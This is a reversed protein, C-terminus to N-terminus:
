FSFVTDQDNKFTSKNANRENSVGLRGFGTILLREGEGVFRDSYSIPQVKEGDFQITGNIELLGIDNALLPDNYKEHVILTKVTYQTGGSKLDTTGVVM